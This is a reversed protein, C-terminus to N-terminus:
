FKYAVGFNLYGLGYGLEAYAGINETFYYKCGGVAGLLLHSSNYDTVADDNSGFSLFYMGLTLGAYADFKESQAFDPHYVARAAIMTYRYTWSYRTDWFNYDYRGSKYGIQGGIGINGPGVDEKFGKEFAISMVPTQSSYNNSYGGLGIGAQAVMTSNDFQAQGQAQVAWAFTLSFLLALQFFTNKM